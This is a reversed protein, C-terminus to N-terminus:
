LIPKTKFSKAWFQLPVLSGRASLSLSHFFQSLVWCLFFFFFGVLDHCRTGDSWPLYFPFFHFCHCIKNEQAGEWIVTSPSQLQSILLHKSKPLFAIVFRSLMSFLLSTVKGVFTWTTLAITKGLLWTCIHSSSWLSPWTSFFQHKWITTSSFMWNDILFFGMYHTHVQLIMSIMKM